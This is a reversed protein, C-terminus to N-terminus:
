RDPYLDDRYEEFCDKCRGTEEISELDTIDINGEEDEMEEYELGCLECKLAQRKEPKGIQSEDLM